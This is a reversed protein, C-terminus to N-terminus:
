IVDSEELALEPVDDHINLNTAVFCRESNITVDDKGSKLPTSTFAPQMSIGRRRSFGETNSQQVEIDAGVREESSQQCSVSRHPPQVKMETQKPKLATPTVPSTIPPSRSEQSNAHLLVPAVSSRSVNSRRSAPRSSNRSRTHVNREFLEQDGLLANKEAIDRIDNVWRSYADQNYAFLDLVGSGTMVWFVYKHLDQPSYSPNQKVGNSAGEHIELINAENRTHSANERYRSWCLTGNSPKLWFYFHQVPDSSCSSWFM